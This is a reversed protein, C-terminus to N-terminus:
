RVKLKCIKGIYEDPLDAELKLYNSTFGALLGTKKNREELIVELEQNLFRSKFKNQLEESLKLLKNVRKTKIEPKVQNLM